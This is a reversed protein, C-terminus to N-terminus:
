KQESLDHKRFNSFIKWFSILITMYIYKEKILDSIIKAKLQKIIKGKVQVKRCTLLYTSIIIKRIFLTQQNGGGTQGHKWM